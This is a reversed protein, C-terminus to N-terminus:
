CDRAVDQIAVVDIFEDLLRCLEATALYMDYDVIGPESPVAHYM